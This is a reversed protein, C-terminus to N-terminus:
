EVKHINVHHVLSGEKLFKDESLENGGWSESHLHIHDGSETSDRLRVLDRILSGLGESDAFIHVAEQDECEVTIAM